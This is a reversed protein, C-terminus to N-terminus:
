VYTITKVCLDTRVSTVIDEQSRRRSPSTSSRGFRRSVKAVVGTMVLMELEQDPDSEPEVDAASDSSEVSSARCFDHRKEEVPSVLPSLTASYSDVSVEGCLSHDDWDLDLGSDASSARSVESQGSHQQQMRVVIHKLCVVGSSSDEVDVLDLPLEGDETRAYVDARADILLEVCETATMAAAAHLPTWGDVDRHDVSAGHELLIKTLTPNEDLVSQHLATVGSSLLCDLEVERPRATLVSKVEEIDGERVASEFLLSSPWSVQRKPRKRREASSSPLVLISSRRTKTASAMPCRKVSRIKQLKIKM